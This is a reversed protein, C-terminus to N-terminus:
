NAGNLDAERAQWIADKHAAYYDLRAQGTLTKYHAYKDAATNSRDTAEASVNAELPAIGAKAALEAAKSAAKAEIAATLDDAELDVGAGTLATALKDADAKLADHSAQLDELQLSVAELEAVRAAADANAKLAEALFDTSNDAMAADLDLGAATFADAAFKAAKLAKFYQM